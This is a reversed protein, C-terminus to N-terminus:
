QKQSAWRVETDHSDIICVQISGYNYNHNMIKLLTYDTAVLQERLEQKVGLYNKNNNVGSDNTMVFGFVSFLTFYEDYDLFNENNIRINLLYNTGEALQFKIDKFFNELIGAGINLTQSYFDEDYDFFFNKVEYNDMLEVAKTKFNFGIEM